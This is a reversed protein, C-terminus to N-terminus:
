VGGYETTALYTLLESRFLIVARDSPCVSAVYSAGDAM